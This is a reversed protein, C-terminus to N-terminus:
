KESEVMKLDEFERMKLNFDPVRVVVGADKRNKVQLLLVLFAPKAMKSSKWNRQQCTYCFCSM